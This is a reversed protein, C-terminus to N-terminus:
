SKLQLLALFPPYNGFQDSNRQKKTCSGHQATCQFLDDVCNEHDVFEALIVAFTKLFYEVVNESRRGLNEAHFTESATAARLDSQVFKNGVPHLKGLQIEDERGLELVDRVPPRVALSRQRQVEGSFLNGFQDGRHEFVSFLSIRQESLQTTM